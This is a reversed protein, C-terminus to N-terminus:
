MEERYTLGHRQRADLVARRLLNQVMEPDKINELVVVPHGKDHSHITLDGLRFLREGFTQKQSVDQVRVLEIDVKTKGLVGEILRLRENTLLYRRGVSMFPRGEWLIQEGAPGSAVAEDGAGGAPAASETETGAQDMYDDLVLLAADAALDVLSNLTAKPVGSLDLDSQAISQWIGAKVRAQAESVTGQETM